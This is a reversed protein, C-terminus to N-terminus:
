GGMLKNLVMMELGEYDRESRYQEVTEPKIARAVDLLQLFMQRSNALHKTQDVARTTRMAKVDLGVCGDDAGHLYLRRWGSRESGWLFRGDPLFAFDRGLNIWTAWTETLVNRCAGDSVGCRLLELRTQERNLRQVTVSDSRPTWAVRALYAEPDGTQLWLTGGTALELVGIKVRPNAEGAKPYKQWTVKPYLPSDDVLPYVGVPTEDFHYYAIRSGDPSWWYAEPSRNWIEEYYVWDTVGNLTVNEEGGTTLRTEKGTAVDIAYLDFRRVFAIRSGDPSFSAGEEEAETRTLRRPKRTDLPLLLLDGKVGLLLAEGRPSWAYEELKPVEGGDKLDAMRLLVERNGTM